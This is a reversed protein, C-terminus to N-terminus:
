SDSAREVKASGCRRATGRMREAAAATASRRAVGDRLATADRSLTQAKRAPYLASIPCGRRHM